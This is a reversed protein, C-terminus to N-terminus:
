LRPDDVSVYASAPKDTCPVACKEPSLSGCTPCLLPLGELKDLRKKIGDIERAITLSADRLATGMAAALKEVMEVIEGRSVKSEGM